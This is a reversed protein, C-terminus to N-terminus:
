ESEDEDNRHGWYAEAKHQLIRLDHGDKKAEIYGRKVAQRVSGPKLRYDTEIQKSSLYTCFLKDWIEAGEDTGWAYSHAPIRVSYNYGEYIPHHQSEIVMFISSDEVTGCTSCKRYEVSAETRQGEVSISERFTELKAGCRFCTTRPRNYTTTTM